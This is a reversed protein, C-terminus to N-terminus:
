TRKQKRFYTFYPNFNDKVLLSRKGDESIAWIYVKPLPDNEYSFDLVFFEKLM